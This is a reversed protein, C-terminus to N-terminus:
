LRSAANMMDKYLQEKPKKAFARANSLANSKGIANSSIPRTANEEMKELEENVKPEKDNKKQNYFWSNKIASYTASWPDDAKTIAAALEPNTQELHKVNEESVVESYDSFRQKAKQPLAEKEKQELLERAKKEAVRDVYKQVVSWEPIDDPSLQPLEEEKPQQPKLGQLAGVLERNLREQEQLRRETEKKENELRRFNYEKSGVQPESSAQQTKTGNEKEPAGSAQETVAKKEEEPMYSRTPQSRVNLATTVRYRQTLRINFLKSYLTKM